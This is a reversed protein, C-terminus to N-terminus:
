KDIDPGLKTPVTGGWSREVDEFEAFASETVQVNEGVKFDQLRSDREDRQDAAGRLLRLHEIIIQLHPSLDEAALAEAQALAEGLVHGAMAAVGAWGKRELTDHVLVLHRMMRATHEPEHALLRASLEACLQSPSPSQEAPAARRREALVLHVHGDRRELTLPRVLLGKLRRLAGKPAKAGAAARREKGPAKGPRKPTLPSSSM